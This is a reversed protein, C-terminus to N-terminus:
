FDAFDFNFLVDMRSYKDLQFHQGVPGRSYNFNVPLNQSLPSLSQVPLLCQLTCCILELPGCIVSAPM